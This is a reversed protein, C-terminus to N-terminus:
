VDTPLRRGRQVVAALIERQGTAMEIGLKDIRDHIRDVDTKGPLAAVNLQLADVSERTKKDFALHQKGVWSIAGLAMVVVGHPVYALADSLTM